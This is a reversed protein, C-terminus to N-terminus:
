QLSFSFRKDLNPHWQSLDTSQSAESLHCKDQLIKGLGSDTEAEWTCLKWRAVVRFNIRSPCASECQLSGWSDSTYLWIHTLEYCILIFPSERCVFNSASFKTFINHPSCAAALLCIQSLVSLIGLPRFSYSIYPAWRGWPTPVGVGHGAKWRGAQCRNPGAISEEEVTGKRQRGEKNILTRQQHIWREKSTNNVTILNSGFRAPGLAM